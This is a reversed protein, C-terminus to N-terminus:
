TRGSVKLSAVPDSSPLTMASLTLSLTIAIMASCATSSGDSTESSAVSSSRPM